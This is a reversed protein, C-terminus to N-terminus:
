IKVASCASLASNGLIRLEPVQDQTKRPRQPSFFRGMQSKGGKGYEETRSKGGGYGEYWMYYMDEHQKVTGFWIGGEDWAGAEGREHKTEKSYPHKVKSRAYVYILLQEFALSKLLIELPISFM